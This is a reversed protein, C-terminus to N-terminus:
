MYFVTINLCVHIICPENHDFSRLMFSSLNGGDAPQIIDKNLSERCCPSLVMLTFFLTYVIKSKQLNIDETGHPPIVVERRACRYRDFAPSKYSTARAVHAFLLMFIKFPDQPTSSKNLGQCCNMYVTLNLLKM